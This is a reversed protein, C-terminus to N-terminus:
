CSSLASEAQRQVAELKKELAANCAPLDMEESIFIPEGIVFVTKSFPKPIEFRDWAKEFVWKKSLACGVPVIAVKLKQALYTMGPKVKYIPGIPGDIGWGMCVGSNITRILKKTGAVNKTRSSGRVVVYGLKQLWGELLDGDKSPSVL